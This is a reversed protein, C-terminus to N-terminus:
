KSIIMTNYNIENANVTRKETDNEIVLEGDDNIDKVEYKISNFTINKGVITSQNLYYRKLDILDINSLFTYTKIITDLLNDIDFKKYKDLYNYDERQEINIGIGVIDVSDKNEFIREVLVGSIKQEEVLVDNPWKISSEVGLYNLSLCVALPAIFHHPLNKKFLISFTLDNLSSWIRDFRGRGKLQKIARIVTFDSYKKYNNKLYDNTSDLEEFTIIEM